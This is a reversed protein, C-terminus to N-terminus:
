FLSHIYIGPVGIVSLLVGQSAIFKNVKKDRQSEKGCILNLFSINLEYPKKSGDPMNRYSVRGGSDTM